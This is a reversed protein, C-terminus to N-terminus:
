KARPLPLHPRLKWGGGEQRERYEPRLESRASEGLLECPDFWHLGRVSCRLGIAAATTEGARYKWLQARVPIADFALLEKVGGNCNTAVVLIGIPLAGAQPPVRAPVRLVVDHHFEGQSWVEVLEVGGYRRIVDSLLEGLAAFTALPALTEMHLAPTELVSEARRGCLPALTVRIERLFRMSM